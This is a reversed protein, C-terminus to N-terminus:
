SRPPLRIGAARSTGALWALQDSSDGWGAAGMIAWPLLWQNAYVCWELGPDGYRDAEDPFELRHHRSIERALSALELVTGDPLTASTPPAGGSPAGPPRSM